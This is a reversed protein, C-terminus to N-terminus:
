RTPTEGPRPDSLVDDGTEFVGDIGASRVVLGTASLELRFAGRWPDHSPLAPDLARLEAVTPWHDEVAHFEEAAFALRQVDTVARAGFM